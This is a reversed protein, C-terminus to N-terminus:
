AMDSVCGASEAHTLAWMMGAEVADRSPELRELMGRWCERAVDSLSASDGPVVGEAERARGSRGLTMPPPVWRNSEGVMQFPEVRWSRMSDGNSLAFLRWRYFLHEPSATNFLFAFEPNGAEREMILQEFVCGDQLVFAVVADIVFCQRPDAPAVVVVEEGVGCQVEELPAPPRVFQRGRFVEVTGRGGYRGDRPAGRADRARQEMEADLALGGPPPWIPRAPLPVAKGWGVSLAMDHLSAGDMAARAAEGDQRRMFAVFGTNKGRRRQEDDRPWMIKVSAIPGFQGFERLLVQEDVGPALNGVFLNTSSLDGTDYSGSIAAERDGGAEEGGQERQSDREAENRKLSELLLDITRPKSGRHPHATHVRSNSIPRPPDESASAAVTAPAPRRLGDSPLSSRQTSAGASAGGFDKVFEEYVQAADAEDRRM